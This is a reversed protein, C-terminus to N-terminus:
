SQYYLSILPAIIIGLYFMFKSYTTLSSFPKKLLWETKLIVIYDIILVGLSLLSFLIKTVLLGDFSAMTYSMINFLIYLIIGLSLYLYKLVAM